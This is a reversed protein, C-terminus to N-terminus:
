IEPRSYEYVNIDGFSKVYEITGGSPFLFNTYTENEETFNGLFNTVYFYDVGVFESCASYEGGAWGELQFRYVDDKSVYDTINIIKNNWKGYVVLGEWLKIKKEPTILWVKLIADSTGRECNGVPSSASFLVFYEKGSKLHLDQFIASPTLNDGLPHLNIVGNKGPVELSGSFEYVPYSKSPSLPTKVSPKTDIVTSTNYYWDVNGHIFDPNKNIPKTYFYLMDKSWMVVYKINNKKLETEFESLKLDLMDKRFFTSKQSSPISRSYIGFFEEYSKNTYAPMTSLFLGGFRLDNVDETLVSGDKNKFWDFMKIVDSPPSYSFIGGTFNIPIVKNFDYYFKNFLFANNPTVWLNYLISLNLSLHVILILFVLSFTLIKKKSWLKLIFFSAPMLMLVRVFLLPKRTAYSLIANPIIPKLFEFFLVIIFFSVILFVSCIVMSYMEKNKRTYIVSILGFLIILLTDPFSETVNSLIDYSYEFHFVTPEIISISYSFPNLRILSPLSFFLLKAMEQFKGKKLVM